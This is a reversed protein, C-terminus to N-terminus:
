AAAIIGSGASALKGRQHYEGNAKEVTALLLADAANVVDDLSKCLDATSGSTQSTDNM